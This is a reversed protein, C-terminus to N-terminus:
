KDRDRCHSASVALQVLLHLSYFDQFISPIPLLILTQKALILFNLFKKLMKYIQLILGELHKLTNSLQVGYVGM